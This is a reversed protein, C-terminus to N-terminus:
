CVGVTALVGDNEVVSLLCGERGDTAVGPDRVGHFRDGRRLRLM